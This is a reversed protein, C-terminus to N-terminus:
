RVVTLRRMEAFDAGQVHVVYVGPALAATNVLLRTEGSAEADLIVAVERGLADLVSVRVHQPRDLTLRMSARQTAPNPALLSLTTGSAVTPETAVIGDGTFLYAYGGENPHTTPNKPAGVLARDGSLSVAAGFLDPEVVDRITLKARQTWRVDTRAFVYAAGSDLPSESYVAGILARNGSLSISGGFRDGPGADDAMLRAEQGWSGDSLRAFVYVSGSLPGGAGDETPAGVLARDGDLSVSGGFSNFGNGANAEM